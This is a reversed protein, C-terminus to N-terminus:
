DMLEFAASTVVVVPGSDDVTDILSEVERMNSDVVLTDESVGSRVAEKAAKILDGLNM